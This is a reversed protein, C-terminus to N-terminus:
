KELAYTCSTTGTPKGDKDRLIVGGEIEDPIPGM